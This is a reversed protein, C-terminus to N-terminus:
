EDALTEKLKTLAIKTEATTEGLLSAIEQVIRMQKEVVKDTIEIARQGQMEKKERIKEEKTVDKMISMIIHYEQDYIITEEVYKQYEALYKKKEYVNERKTMAFLYDTPDLIRVVPNEVVDAASKINLINQAASNIQQVELQDNLVFIGNPTNNIIKDSFSEAKEKLYPLCMTLDAKGMLVAVAKERCTNYGCSGCNLEQEPSHKGMKNLIEQIAASGPMTSRKGEYPFQKALKEQEPMDFTFDRKGATKDIRIRENVHYLGEKELAPGGICSGRCISMEIFCDTLLGDEIDKLASMCDEPGDVAIYSFEENRLEMSRLIGGSTPFLRTRGRERSDPIDEFRIDEERLWDTLEEFTLVCDVAGGCIKAEDKKSICPGIFVTHCGPHEEKLRQCHAHMPSVVPALYKLAGPYYKQILKNVSHCCSTIVVKQSHAEVIREYETKVIGAGIATEEAGAFGLRQLAQEMADISIGNYNAVFAPAVSVYVSQGSAILEKAHPVDNRIEKANQPCNVFCRGCLICDDKIIHAQNDEVKISKVPCFRICKYCNKCNSKKLKLCSDM